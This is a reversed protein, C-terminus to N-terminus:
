KASDTSAATQLRTMEEQFRAKLDSAIAREAITGLVYGIGAFVFMMGAAAPFTASAGSQHIVGRAVITAFAILGLVGAYTRGM